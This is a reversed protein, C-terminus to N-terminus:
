DRCCYLMAMLAILFFSGIGAVVAATTFGIFENAAVTGTAAAVAGFVFTMILAIYDIAEWGKDENLIYSM